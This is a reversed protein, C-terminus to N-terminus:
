EAWLMVSRNGANAMVNWGHWSRLSLHINHSVFQGVQQHYWGELMSSNLGQKPLPPPAMPSSKMCEKRLKGRKNEEVLSFDPYQKLFCDILATTLASFGRYWKLPEREMEYLSYFSGIVEKRAHLWTGMPVSLLALSFNQKTLSCHRVKPDSSARDSRFAVLICIQSLLYIFSYFTCNFLNNSLLYYYNWQQGYSAWAPLPKLCCSPFDVSIMLDVTVHAALSKYIM